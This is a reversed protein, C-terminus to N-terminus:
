PKSFMGQTLSSFDYEKVSQTPTASSIPTASPTMSTGAPAVAVGNVFANQGMTYISSSTPFPVSSGLPHTPGVNGMQQMYKKLDNNGTAPMMMGPFQYGVNPWNQTPIATGNSGLQQANGTFKPVVGTSKATAAMLISQQQALMALQQQHMSFPSVMNSKDFLSMIDNKVDKQPKESVTSSALLPSDKFLDEIGSTSQSKSDDPKTSSTKDAISGEAASQFGAWTNDDASTAESANENPDDMSLMNFLDTVYDVKPHSVAQRSDAAQKGSEVPVTPESKQIVQQSNPAPIAPESGKAPVPISTRRRPVGGSARFSKREENSNESKNVHGHESRDGPRQWQVSAKEELARSPSKPKGDKPIWRKEEYKARIFNEIGVRDYNPPLEAEWYSNSKENGMTQIFAVQEPLWTDLTASRVKSIHVGLSRHIGSCEMCIFIGLNVSAWRPGKSKCDACERNEPLKLLGELIKRHKANLEKTVNAKGNM